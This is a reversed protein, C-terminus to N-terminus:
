RKKRSTSRRPAAAAPANGSAPAETKIALAVVEVCHQSMAILHLLSETPLSELVALPAATVRHAISLFAPLSERDPAAEMRQVTLLDGVSIPRVTYVKGDPLEVDGRSVAAAVVAKYVSM